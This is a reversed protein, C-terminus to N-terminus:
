CSATQNEMELNIPWILSFKMMEEFNRDVNKKNMCFKM